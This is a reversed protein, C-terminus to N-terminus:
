QLTKNIQMIQFLDFETNKEQYVTNYMFIYIYRM